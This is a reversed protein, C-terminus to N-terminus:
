LIPDIEVPNDTELYAKPHESPYAWCLFRSFFAQPLVDFPPEVIAGDFTSGPRLAAFHPFRHDRTIQGARFLFQALGVLEQISCANFADDM